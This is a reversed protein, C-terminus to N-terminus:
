QRRGVLLSYDMQRLRVTVPGRDLSNGSASLSVILLLGALM